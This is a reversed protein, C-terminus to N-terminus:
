SYYAVKGEYLTSEQAQTGEADVVIAFYRESDPVNMIQKAIDGSIYYVLSGIGLNNNESDANPFLKITDGTVTPFVLKYRSNGALNYPIRVNDDNMAYLKFMYNSSTHKLRLIMQGQTYMRGTNVDNVVIDTADYYSRIYKETTTSTTATPKIVAKEIKNIVKYKTLNSVQISSQQNYKRADVTISATRIIDMGNMRNYLHATYKITITTPEM